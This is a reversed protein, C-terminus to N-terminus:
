RRSGIGTAGYYDITGVPVYVWLEDANTMNSDRYRVYADGNTYSIHVTGKFTRINGDCCLTITNYNHSPVTSVVTGYIGYVGDQIECLTYEHETYQHIHVILSVILGIVILSIAIIVVTIKNKM